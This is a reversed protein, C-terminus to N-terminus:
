RVQCPDSTADEDRASRLHRTQVANAPSAQLGSDPRRQYQPYSRNERSALPFRLDEAPGLCAAQLRHNRMALYTRPWALALNSHPVAVRRRACRKAVCCRDLVLWCESANLM